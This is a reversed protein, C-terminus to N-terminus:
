VVAWLDIIFYDRSFLCVFCICICLCLLKFLLLFEALEIAGAMIRLYSIFTCTNM